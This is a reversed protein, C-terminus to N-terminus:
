VITSLKEQLDKNELSKILDEKKVDPNLHIQNALQINYDNLLLLNKNKIIVNDNLEILTVDDKVQVNKFIKSLLKFQEKNEIFYDLENLTTKLTENLSTNLKKLEELEEKEILESLENTM